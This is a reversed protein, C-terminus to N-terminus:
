RRTLTVQSLNRRDRGNVLRATARVSRHKELTSRGLRTLRLPIAASDRDPASITGAALTRSAHDVLLLTGTCGSSDTCLATIRATNIARDVTASPALAIPISTTPPACGTQPRLYTAAIEGFPTQQYLLVGTGSPGFGETLPFFPSMLGSILHAPCWAGSGAPEVTALLSGATPNGFGGPQLTMSITFPVVADGNSDFGTTLNWVGALENVPFQFADQTAATGDPAIETTSLSGTGGAAQASNAELITGEAGTAWSPSSVGDPNTAGLQAEPNFSGGSAATAYTMTPDGGPDSWTPAVVIMADVLVRGSSDSQIALDRVFAGAPGTLAPMPTSFLEGPQASAAMVLAPPPQSEAPWAITATGQSDITVVPANENSEPASVVEPAGFPQGAVSWSAMVERSASDVWAVVVDGRDDAAVAPEGGDTSLEQAATGSSSPSDWVWVDGLGGTGDLWAVDPRGAAMAVAPASANVSSTLLIPASVSGDAGAVLLGLGVPSSVGGFDVPGDQVGFVVAVRGEADSASARIQADRLVVIPASWVVGGLSSAPFAGAAAAFACVFLGTL